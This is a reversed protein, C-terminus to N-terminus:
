GDRRKPLPPSIASIADRARVKCLRPREVHEHAPTVRQMSFTGCLRRSPQARETVRVAVDNEDDNTSQCVMARKMSTVFWDM